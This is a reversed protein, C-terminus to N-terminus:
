RRARVFDEKLHHDALPDTLRDAGDDFDADRVFKPVSRPPAAVDGTFGSHRFVGEVSQQPCQRATRRRCLVIRPTSNSRGCTTAPAAAVNARAPMVPLTRVSLPSKKLSSGDPASAMMMFCM